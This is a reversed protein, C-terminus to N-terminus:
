AATGQETSDYVHGPELVSCYRIGQTLSSGRRTCAGPWYKLKYGPTGRVLCLSCYMLGNDTVVGVSMVTGEIEPPQTTIFLASAKLTEKRSRQLLGQNM